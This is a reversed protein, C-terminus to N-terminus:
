SSPLLFNRVVDLYRQNEEVYTMHGSNEFVVLRSNPIGAAIAEAAHVPCTRDHRGALVLTPQPVASLRDEVAIGGYEEAAFRSLVKPSYRAGRTRAEYEEIRPDRPDAFHFPLQDRLLGAVEVQTRVYPEREWSAAVQARLEEPQFEDLSRQVHELYSSDPVGSSVITHSARGPHDVANQLAVFAGFSHGLVAYRSFGMAEALASVDEAMRELTLTDDDAEDCRGQGRQDVLVLRIEDGLPDLYDGFLTHDLGPGGHLVLLPYGDGREVVYLRTDGVDVLRGRPAPPM